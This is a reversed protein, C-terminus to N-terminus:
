SQINRNVVGELVETIFNEDELTGMLIEFDGDVESYDDNYIEQVFKDLTCGETNYSYEQLLQGQTELPLQNVNM